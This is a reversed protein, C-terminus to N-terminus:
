PLTFRSSAIRVRRVRPSYKMRMPFRRIKSSRISTPDNRWIASLDIIQASQQFAGWEEAWVPMQDAYVRDISKLSLLPIQDYDREHSAVIFPLDSEQAIQAAHVYGNCACSHFEDDDAM